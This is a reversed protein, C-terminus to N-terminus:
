SWCLFEKKRHKIILVVLILAVVGVMIYLTYNTSKEQVMDTASSQQAVEDKKLVMSKDADANELRVERAASIGANYAKAQEPSLKSSIFERLKANDCVFGSCGAEYDTVLETHLEAVDYLQADTAKWMGKRAAELMVATM